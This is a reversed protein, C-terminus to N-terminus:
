TLMELLLNVRLGFPAALSDSVSWSVPTLHTASSVADSTMEKTLALSHGCPGQQFNTAIQRHQGGRQTKLADLSLTASQRAKM